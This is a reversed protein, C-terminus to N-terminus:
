SRLGRIDKTQDTVEPAEFSAVPHACYDAAYYASPRHNGSAGLGGFPMTGAAGTTPRNWNCVGARARLAYRDWLAREESILGGALGFATNNAAKIASAFDLVREVQLVPGFIEQDPVDLGTVEIIAPTLFARSRGAPTELPLLVVAGRRVLDEYASRVRNAAQESVLPGMSPDTRDDWSGVTLRGAYDVVAALIADGRGGEPIIVRRACSCRQGASIFASSVIISAVADPDGDWAILPNNGGLELVLIVQPRDVFQRRLHAGTTASGTFLLGDIEAGALAIGTERGGQVVNFVGDPLGAEQMLEAIIEGVLPAEESPKFVITNGALLAPVIHGNPLHGPFNYPGYVAMVGHPRHRLVSRGFATEREAEGAREALARISITVKNIMSAVEQQAEWLPKGTERGIAAALREGHATLAEQYREACGARDARPLESWGEFANRAQGVAAGVAEAGAVPGEWVLDGTAPCHSKLTSM